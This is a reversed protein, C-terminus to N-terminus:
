VQNYRGAPNKIARQQKRQWRAQLKRAELFSRGDDDGKVEFNAGCSVSLDGATEILRGPVRWMHADYGVM